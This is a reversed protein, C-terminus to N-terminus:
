ARAQQLMARARPHKDLMAWTEPGVIADVKLGNSRQFQDVAKATVPGFKGDVVAVGLVKQVYAVHPQQAALKGMGAGQRLTPRPKPEPHITAPGVEVHVRPPAPSTAPYSAPATTARPAPLLPPPRRAVPPSSPARAGPKVRFAVVGQKGSAVTAAQYTIWRGATQETKHAGKGRAWLQPLLQGARQQVVIPPPEDYEWGPGPFPPLEKPVVQPWPPSPPPPLPSSPPPRRPQRPARENTVPGSGGGAFGWLLALFLTALDAGM